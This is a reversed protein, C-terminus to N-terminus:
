TLNCVDNDYFGTTQRNARLGETFWLACQIVQTPRNQQPQQTCLLTQEVAKVGAVCGAVTSFLRM